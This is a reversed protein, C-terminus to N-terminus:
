CLAAYIHVVSIHQIQQVCIGWLTVLSPVSFSVPTAGAPRFLPAAWCLAARTGAGRRARRRRGHDGAAHARGGPGGLQTTLVFLWKGQIDHEVSNFLLCTKSSCCYEVPSLATLRPITHKGGFSKSGSEYRELTPCPRGVWRSWALWAPPRSTTNWANPMARPAGAARVARSGVM